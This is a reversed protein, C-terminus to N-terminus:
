PWALSQGSTESPYFAPGQFKLSAYIRANNFEGEVYAANLPARLSHSNLKVFCDRTLTVRGMDYFRYEGPPAINGADVGRGIKAVDGQRPLRPAFGAVFPLGMTEPRDGGDYVAAKGYAADPDDRMGGAYSHPLTM